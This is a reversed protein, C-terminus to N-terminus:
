PTTAKRRSATPAGVWTITNSGGGANITDNGSGLARIMDNGSDTAITWNGTDTNAISILNNGGGAAVTGSGTTAYFTLSSNAGSLISQNQDASGFVVGVPATEVFATYGLSLHIPAGPRSQVYEGTTGSLPPPPGGTDSSALMSGGTVQASIAPALQQALIATEPSTYPLSVLQSHAGVVTVVSTM